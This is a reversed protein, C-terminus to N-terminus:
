PAEQHPHFILTVISDQFEANFISLDHCGIGDCWPLYFPFPHFCHCIEEEQARFDNCITVAAMFDSTQKKAPFSHCVYVSHQFALAM